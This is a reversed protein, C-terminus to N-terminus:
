HKQLAKLFHQLKDDINPIIVNNKENIINIIEKDEITLDLTKSISKPKPKARQKKQKPKIVEQIINTQQNILEKLNNISEYIDKYVDVNNSIPLIEEVKTEQVQVEEVKEEVKKTENKIAKPKPISVAKPKPKKKRKEDVIEKINEFSPEEIDDM